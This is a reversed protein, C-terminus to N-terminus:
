KKIITCGDDEECIEIVGTLKNLRYAIGTTQTSSLEYLGNSLFISLSIIIAAIIIALSTDM